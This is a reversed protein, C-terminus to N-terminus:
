NEYLNTFSPIIIGDNLDGMMQLKQQKSTMPLISFHYTNSNVALRLFNM